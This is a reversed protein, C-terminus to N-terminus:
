PLAFATLKASAGSGSAVVIFQRGSSTRYTMPNASGRDDLDGAWLEEGTDTDFAYLASAGGSVFVLGGATVMPGPAGPVGLRDPLTVGRLAPHYRVNPMDGVPSAWLHEGTNLDVATLVGYPPRTLPLGNSLRVGRVSRDVDYEGEVRAPDAEQMALVSPQNTSKVYLVSTSPDVAAGGWNTGGIIGPLILTGEMSPPIFMEGHRYKRLIALAEARLEPTFDILQDETMVQQSVPLPWTPFPQTPSTEEGPVDSQQVPREEIPWVPEGTVRDFVYLFGMKSPAAVADIERGDVEISLLAPPSGLDYDWLGHHVAQFHWVHEGTRADLCLLSEGFLNDGKRRGGYYDNSPTGVPLYLLGREQDLVFPAWVNTHGTYRWSGGKWTDNGLEGEQPILNFRWSLEGTRVDFALVNGPPDNEYVFGDWVGNGLIVLDEFVVPPSTQTYHLPNTRWMLHDTLVVEGRHGFGEIPRGTTADLAILRWRTNLFIRRENEGTWIAIGRHVFGTGNPPRGWDATLPDFTWIEEGTSANLAVVRNYPTTVYMTDNIVLPTVEFSGGRVDQGPIPQRPGPIPKEGTAWEWAVTLDGVNERNVDASASYKQGGPDGGYVPWDISQASASGVFICLFTIPLTTFRM